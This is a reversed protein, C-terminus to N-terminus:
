QLRIISPSIVPFNHRSGEVTSYVAFKMKYTWNNRGVTVSSFTPRSRWQHQPAPPREAENIKICVTRLWLYQIIEEAIVM